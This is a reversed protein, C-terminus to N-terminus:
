KVPAILDSRDLWDVVRDIDNFAWTPDILDPLRSYGCYAV